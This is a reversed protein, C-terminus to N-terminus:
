EGVFPEDTLEPSELPEMEIKGVIDELMETAETSLREPHKEIDAEAKLSEGLKAAEGEWKYVKARDRLYGEDFSEPKIYEGPGIRDELKYFVSYRGTSYPGLVDGNDAKVLDGQVYKPLEAIRKYSMNGGHMKDPFVSMAVAISAFDDGAALKSKVEGVKEEGSVAIRRLWYSEDRVKYDRDKVEEYFALADEESAETFKEYVNKQWFAEILISKRSNDLRWAVENDEYLKEKESQQYIVEAAIWTEMIDEKTPYSPMGRSHNLEDIRDIDAVTLVRDNVRAVVDDDSVTDEKGCNIATTIIIGVTIGLSLVLIYKKM